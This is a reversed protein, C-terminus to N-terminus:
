GFFDPIGGFSDSFGGFSDSLGSFSDSLGGFSDSIGGSTGGFCDSIQFFPLNFFHNLLSEVWTSAPSGAGSFCLLALSSPPGLQLYASHLGQM